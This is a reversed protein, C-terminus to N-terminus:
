RGGVYLLRPLWFSIAVGCWRWFRFPTTPSNRWTLYACGRARIGRGVRLETVYAQLGAREVPEGGAGHHVPCSVGAWCLLTPLGRLLLAFEWLFFDFLGFAEGFTRERVGAIILNPPTGILTIMGGLLSAFSAPMLLRSAPVGTREGSRLAMPMMM